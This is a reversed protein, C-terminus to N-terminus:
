RDDGDDVQPILHVCGVAAFVLICATFRTVTDPGTPYTGCAISFRHSDAGTSQVWSTFGCPFTRSLGDDRPVLSDAGDRRKISM